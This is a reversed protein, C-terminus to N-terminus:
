DRRAQWMRRDAPILLNNVLLRKLGTELDANVLDKSKVRSSPINHSSEWYQGTWFLMNNGLYVPVYSTLTGKLLASIDEGKKLDDSEPMNSTIFDLVLNHLVDLQESHVLSQFASTVNTLLAAAFTTLFRAPRDTKIREFVKILM